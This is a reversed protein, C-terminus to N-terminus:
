PPQRSITFIGIGLLPSFEHAHNIALYCFHFLNLGMLQILVTNQIRNLRKLYSGVLLYLWSSIFNESPFLVRLYTPMIITRCSGKKVCRIPIYVAFKQSYLKVSLFSLLRFLQAHTERLFRTINGDCQQLPCYRFCLVIQAVAPPFPSLTVRCFLPAVTTGCVCANNRRIISILSPLLAPSLLCIFWLLSSLRFFLTFSTVSVSSKFKM